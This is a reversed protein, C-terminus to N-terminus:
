PQVGANLVTADMEEILARARSRLLHSRMVGLAAEHGSDEAVQMMTLNGAGMPVDPDWGNDMFAVLLREMNLKIISDMPEVRGDELDYRKFFLPAKGDQIAMAALTLLTEECDIEKIKYKLNGAKKLSEIVPSEDAHSSGIRSEAWPIRNEFCKIVQTRANICAVRFAFAPDDEYLATAIFAPILAEQFPRPSEDGPNTSERVMANIAQTRIPGVAYSGYYPDDIAHKLALAFTSPLFSTGLFQESQTVDFRDRNQNGKAGISFDLGRAVRAGETMIVNALVQLCNTRSLRLALGYPTVSSWNWALSEEGFPARDVYGNLILPFARALHETADPLDLAISHVLMKEAIKQLPRRGFPFAPTIQEPPLQLVFQQVVSSLREQKQQWQTDAELAYIKLPIDLAGYVPDDSCLLTKLQPMVPVAEILAQEWYAPYQLKVNNESSKTM